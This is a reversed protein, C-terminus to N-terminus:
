ATRRKFILTFYMDQRVIGTGRDRRECLEWGYAGLQNVERNITDMTQLSEPYQIFAYEWKDQDVSPPTMYKQAGSLKGGTKQAPADRKQAARTNANQEALDRLFSM